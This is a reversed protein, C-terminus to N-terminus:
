VATTIDTPMSVAGRGLPMPVFRLTPERRPRLQHARYAALETDLRERDLVGQGVLIDAIPKKRDSQIMLLFMVDDRNLLGMEIALDGFRVSPATNQARLISFIHRAALKGEELAIQGIPVLTRMQEELAAVLQEASIVGKKQLYLGFHMTLIELAHAAIERDGYTRNARCLCDSSFPVNHILEIRWRPTCNQPDYSM